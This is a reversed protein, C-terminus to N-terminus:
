GTPLLLCMLVERHQLPFQVLYLQSAMAPSLYVDIERVVEDSDDVVVPEDQPETKIAARRQGSRSMDPLQLNM